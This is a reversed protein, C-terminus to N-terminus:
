NGNIYISKTIERTKHSIKDTVKLKINIRYGDNDESGQSDCIDIFNSYEKDSVKHTWKISYIKGIKLKNEVIDEEKYFLWNNKAWGTPNVVFADFKLDEPFDYRVALTFLNQDNLQNFSKAKNFDNSLSFKPIEPKEFVEISDILKLQDSGPDKYKIFIQHNKISHTLNLKGDKENARLSLIIKDDAIFFLDQNTPNSVINVAQNYIKKVPNSIIMNKSLIVFDKKLPVHPNNYPINVPPQASNSEETSYNGFNSSNGKRLEEKLKAIENTLIANIKKENEYNKKYNDMIIKSAVEPVNSEAVKSLTLEAGKYVMITLIVIYLIQYLVFKNDSSASRISM